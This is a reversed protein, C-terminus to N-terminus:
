NIWNIKEKIIQAISKGIIFGVAYMWNISLFAALLSLNKIYQFLHEGDTTFVLLTSSYPFREEYKPYIWFHYWRKKYPILNGFIDLKWKNRWSENTNFFKTYHHWASKISKDELENFFIYFAAGAAVLIITLTM